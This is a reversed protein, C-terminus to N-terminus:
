RSDCLQAKPTRWGKPALVDPSHVIITPTLVSETESKAPTEWALGLKMGATIAICALALLCDRRGTHSGTTARTAASNNVNM